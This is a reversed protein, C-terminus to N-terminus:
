LVESTSTAPQLLHVESARKTERRGDIVVIVSRLMVVNIWEKAGKLTLRPSTYICNATIEDLICVHQCGPLSILRCDRPHSKKPASKHKNTRRRHKEYKNKSHPSTPLNNTPGTTLGPILMIVIIGLGPIRKCSTVLTIAWKVGM